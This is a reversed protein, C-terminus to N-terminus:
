IKIIYTVNVNKPRNETSGGVSNIVTASAAGTRGRDPTGTAGRLTYNADVGAGYDTVEAIFSSSSLLTDSAGSTVALHYHAGGGHDHAEVDDDQVSFLNDGTNGGTAMATRGAADPDRGQAADRGRLFRGRLDPVNFTTANDGEGATEGIVAFLASYTTRSVASGDCLLWGTPATTAGYAIISATPFGTGLAELSSVPAEYWYTKGVIRSLAFRIRRLEESLSTALSESGSGGPSTTLRMTAVDASYDEISEPKTNTLLNNFESNLDSAYLTEGSAWTKLRSFLAM